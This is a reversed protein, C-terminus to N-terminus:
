ASVHIKKQEYPSKEPIEANDKYVLKQKFGSYDVHHHVRSFRWVVRVVDPHLRQLMKSKDYTGRKKYLEDTNGGQMRQTAVKDQTFANFCVTCWGDKLMRLTLDVDENFRARWRYPTDCRILNCSYIKTNLYYPPKYTKAPVFMSYQPGAMSVNRYRLAFDEMACFGSDDLIRIKQNKHFRRFHYINDDMIWHWDHGESVALDWIFNRAPGSGKSLTQSEDDDCTEYEDQYMPDLVVVRKSGVTKAYLDKESNEVIVRFDIGMADLAKATLFRDHRGKSPIFIPCRM